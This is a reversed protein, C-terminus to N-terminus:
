RCLSLFVVQFKFAFCKTQLKKEKCNLLCKSILLAGYLYFIVSCMNALLLGISLGGSFGGIRGFMLIFSTAMGRYNTPFLNVGVAMAISVGSVISLFIVFSMVILNFENFINLAICTIASILFWSGLSFIFNKYICFTLALNCRLSFSM